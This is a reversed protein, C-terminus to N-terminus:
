HLLLTLDYPFPHFFRGAAYKPYVFTQWPTPCLPKSLPYIYIHIYVCMCIHPGLSMEPLVRVRVMVIASTTHQKVTPLRSVFLLIWTFIRFLLDSPSPVSSPVSALSSYVGQQGRVLLCTGSKSCRLDRPPLMDSSLLLSRPLTPQPIM